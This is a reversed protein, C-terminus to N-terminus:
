VPQRWRGQVGVPGGALYLTASLGNPLEGFLVGDRWGLTVPGRCTHITAEAYDLLSTQPRLEISVGDPLLSGIGVIYRSLFDVPVCAWPHCLSDLEDGSFTEWMTTAGRDVLAGWKQRVMNLAQGILGADVMLPLMYLHFYPGCRAMDPDDRLLRNMLPQLPGAGVMACLTNTQQSVQTVQEGDVIGDVFASEQNCYFTNEIQSVLRDARVRLAQSGSRGLLDMLDAIARLTHAFLAHLAANRGRRDLGPDQVNHWGLGPHDIFLNMGPDILPDSAFAPADVFSAQNPLDQWDIMLWGDPDTRNIFWEVIRRAAPLILSATEIDGSEYVYQRAGVIALLQYDLFLHSQGSFLATKILGQRGQVVFAERVLYCWYSYDGTLRSIWGAVHNADGVYPAQERTPCDILGEQTGIRITRECLDWIANLRDDSCEFRASWDLAPESALMGVRDFRVNGSFGRLILCFYRGASYGMPLWHNFGPRAIYRDVYSHGKRMLAPRERELLEGWGIDVVGDSDSHFNFTVGGTYQRGLDFVLATGKRADLNKIEMSDYDPGRSWAENMLYAGIENSKMDRTLPHVECSTTAQHILKVAPQFTHRLSPLDTNIFQGDGM